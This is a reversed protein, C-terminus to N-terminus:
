GTSITSKIQALPVWGFSATAEVVPPPEVKVSAVATVQASVFVGGYCPASARMGIQLSWGRSVPSVGNLMSKMASIVPATVILEDSGDLPDTVFARAAFTGPIGSGDPEWWEVLEVDIGFAMLATRIGHPTGKYRHVEASVAIVARKVAEPWGSDWADVSHEWALHDLLGVDVNAPNKTIMQVPLSFLREELLDLARALPTASPPLLSQRVESM